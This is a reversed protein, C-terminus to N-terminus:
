ENSAWWSPPGYLKVPCISQRSERKERDEQKALIRCVTFSNSARADKQPLPLTFSNTGRLVKEAFPLTTLLFFWVPCGVPRPNKDRLCGVQSEVLKPSM